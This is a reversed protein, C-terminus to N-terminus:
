EGCSKSVGDKQSVNCELLRLCKKTRLFEQAQTSIRNKEVFGHRQYFRAAADNSGFVFVGVTSFNLRQATEKVATLLRSGVGYNRYEPLVCISDLHWSGPIKHDVFARVYQRQQDSYQDRMQPHMILGDSPFSLAMGVVSNNVEAVITNAYSYYIEQELMHALHEVPSHGRIVGAFLYEVAGEATADILAAIISCDAVQGTRLKVSNPSVFAM